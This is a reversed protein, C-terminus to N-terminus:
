GAWEAEMSVAVWEAAMRNVVEWEAEEDVVATM